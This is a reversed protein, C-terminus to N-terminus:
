RIYILQVSDFPQFRTSVLIRLRGAELNMKNDHGKQHPPVM